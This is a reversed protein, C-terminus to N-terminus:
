NHHNTVDGSGSVASQVPGDINLSVDGSGSIAVKASTGQLNGANVDGSGNIAYEQKQARGTLVMDSSGSIAVELNEVDLQLIFDGSGSSALELSKVAIADATKIDSSGSNSISTIQKYTIVLKYDKSSYGGKKMGIALTNNKVQVAVDNADKKNSSITVSPNNGQKLLVEEFGGSIAIHEFDAVQQTNSTQAVLAAQAVAFVALIVTFLRKM